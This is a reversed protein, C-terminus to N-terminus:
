GQIQLLYANLQYWLEVERQDQRTSRLPFLGGRGSPKYTRWIVMNIKDAIEEASIERDDTWDRMGVNDILHWFWELPEGGGEFALRRSLAILMELFSCGLTMWNEDVVEIQSDQLFEERLLRGDTVRNDDNPVLWVFETTYLQRLLRWYTRSRSRTKVSGVQSYLWRLYLDDLPEDMM